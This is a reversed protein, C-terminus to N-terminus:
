TLSKAKRQLNSFLSTNLFYILLSNIDTTHCGVLNHSQLMASALFFADSWKKSVFNPLTSLWCFPTFISKPCTPLICNRPILVNQPMLSLM